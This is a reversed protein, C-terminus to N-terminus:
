SIYIGMWSVTNMLSSRASSGEGGAIFYINNYRFYTRGEGDLTM